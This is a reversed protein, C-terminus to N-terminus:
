ARCTSCLCCKLSALVQDLSGSNGAVAALLGPPKAASKQKKKAARGPEVGNQATGDLPQAAGHEDAAASAPAPRAEQDDATDAAAQKGKTAKVGTPKQREALCWRLIYLRPTRRPRRLTCSSLAYLRM